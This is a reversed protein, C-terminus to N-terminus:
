ESEGEQPEVDPMPVLWGYAEFQNFAADAMACCRSAVESPTLGRWTARGASDEGSRVAHLSSKDMLSMALQARGNPVVSQTVMVRDEGYRRHRSVIPQDKM